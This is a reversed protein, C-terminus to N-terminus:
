LKKQRLPRQQLPHMITSPVGANRKRIRPLSFQKNTSNVHSSPPSLSYSLQKCPSRTFLMSFVNKQQSIQNPTASACSLFKNFAYEDIRDWSFGKNLGLAMCFATDYELWAHAPYIRQWSCIAEQYSLLDAALEQHFNVMAQIFINWGELWASFNTVKPKFTGAPNVSISHDSPSSRYLTFTVLRPKLNSNYLSTSLLSNFDIYEKNQIAKILKSSLPQLYGRPTALLSSLTGQSDQIPFATEEESQQQTQEPAPSSPSLSRSRTLSNEQLDM